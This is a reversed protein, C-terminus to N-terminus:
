HRKAARESYKEQALDVEGQTVLGNDLGYQLHKAFPQGNTVFDLGSTEITNLVNRAMQELNERM